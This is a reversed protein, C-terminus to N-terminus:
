FADTTGVNPTPNEAESREFEAEEFADIQMQLSRDADDAAQEEPSPNDRREKWADWADDTELNMRSM